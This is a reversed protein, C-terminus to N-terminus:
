AGQIVYPVSGSFGFISTFSFEIYNCYWTWVHGQPLLVKQDTELTKLVFPSMMFFQVQVDNAM